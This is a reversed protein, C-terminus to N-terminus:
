EYKKSAQEIDEEITKCLQELAKNRKNIRMRANQRTERFAFIIAVIVLTIIVTLITSEITGDTPYEM